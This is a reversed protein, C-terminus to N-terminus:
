LINSNSANSQDFTYTFGKYLTLEGQQNLDVYYKNGGSLSAVTIMHNNAIPDDGKVGQPGQAGAPGQAGESGAIGQPGQPGQAGTLLSLQLPTFDEFTFDKGNIGQPGTIGQPGQPGGVGQPGNIGQPGQPGSIGQPGTIGQPGIRSIGSKIYGVM